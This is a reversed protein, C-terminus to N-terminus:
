TILLTVQHAFLFAASQIKTLHQELIASLANWNRPLLIKIAALVINPAYEADEQIKLSM